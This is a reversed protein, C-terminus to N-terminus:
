HNYVRDRNTTVTLSSMEFRVDRVFRGVRKMIPGIECCSHRLSLALYPDDRCALGNLSKVNIGGVRTPLLNHCLSRSLVRVCFM